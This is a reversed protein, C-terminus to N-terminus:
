VSCDLGLDAVALEIDDLNEQGLEILRDIEQPWRRRGNEEGRTNRM